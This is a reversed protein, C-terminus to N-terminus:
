LEATKEILTLPTLAYDAQVRRAALAHALSAATAAELPVYGQALLAATMGGLVDGSGAKALASTGLTNVYLRMAAEGRHRTGIFSNAGKLLLVAEPFSDCFRRMLATRSQAIDQTRYSGLGCIELLAAFEKPHPTLVIGKAREQLLTHLAPAYCIDADLVCPVDKHERLWGCCSDAARNDRGLGMGLALAATGQPIDPATMLEFPVQVASEAQQVVTVLGAGFRLAATAAILAAGPKQGMVAAVHGFSGKHVQQRPRHPLRLDGEQLLQAAASSDEFATRSVGLGAISIRGAADKALDSYLAMKLAGMAVTEDARFVTGAANGDADLGSPIDCAVKYADRCANAAMAAAAAEPPLSGHFGSGFMCDAIVKLDISTEELYADLEEVRIFRVGLRAAREKQAVCPASKPEAVACVTVGIAGSSLRRALAYGDAGNNGGGALVLVAARNLHVDTSSGCHALVAQELAAAANEMMIDETLGYSERARADLARTDTFIQQMAGMISRAAKLLGSPSRTQAAHVKNRPSTRRNEPLNM